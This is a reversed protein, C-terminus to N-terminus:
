QILRFLSRVNTMINAGLSFGMGFLPRNPFTERAWNVIQKVDWTARANFLVGSTVKSHACGRANVVCVEWDGGDLVLPAIAHRLYIEHSGGSLGHLVILMPRSDDSGIKAFEEEAFYATRPPLTEDFDQHPDVAFDVTFTGTYTKHDADFIRRRYYIPPGHEKVATWMTQVNGNFLLPNLQCPPTGAECLKLLDTTTGDKKRLALPSPSHTFAIKARGFWDMARFLRSTARFVGLSSLINTLHQHPQLISRISRKQLVKNALAIPYVIGTLASDSKLVNIERSLALFIATSDLDKKHQSKNAGKCSNSGKVALSPHKSFDVVPGCFRVHFCSFSFSCSHFNSSKRDIFELLVVGRGIGSVHRINFPLPVFFCPLGGDLLDSERALNNLGQM